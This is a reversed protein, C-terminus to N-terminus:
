LVFYYIALAIFPAILVTWRVIVWWWRSSWRETADGVSEMVKEGLEGALVEAIIEAMVRPYSAGRRVNLPVGPRPMGDKSIPGLPLNPSSFLTRNRHAKAQSKDTTQYGVLRGKRTPIRM